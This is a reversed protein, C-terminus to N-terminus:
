ILPLRDALVSQLTVHLTTGERGHLRVAAAASDRFPVAFAVQERPLYHPEKRGPLAPILKVIDRM